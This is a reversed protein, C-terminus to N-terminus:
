TLLSLSHLYLIEWPGGSKGLLHESDGVWRWAGMSSFGRAKERDEDQEVEGHSSVASKEREGGFVGKAETIHGERTREGGPGRVRPM